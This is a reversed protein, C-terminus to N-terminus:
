RRDREGAVRKVRYNKNHTRDTSPSGGNMPPYRSIIPTQRVVLGCQRSWGVPASVANGAFLSTSVHRASFFERCDDGVACLATHVGNVVDAPALASIIRHHRTLHSAPANVNPFIRNVRSIQQMMPTDQFPPPSMSLGIM